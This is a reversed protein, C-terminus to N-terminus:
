IFLKSYFGENSVLNKAILQPIKLKIFMEVIPYNGMVSKFPVYLQLCKLLSQHSVKFTPDGKLSM